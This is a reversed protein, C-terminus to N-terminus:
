AHVHPSTIAGTAAADGHPGFGPRAVPQGGRSLRVACYKFEPIKGFPDLESHTLVNAAAEYYAFPIFVSGRPTGDDRRAHLAVSGRRSEVTIVDGPEVGLAQMDDGCLSATAQPEIADLVSARRTMSGTHWHELQRGTILVFPFDADPREAAPIIDAPVLKVRGSPTPFRETFVVPQGPDDASLCPYTVSSERELRQWTIGGIAAHMAQRMEDYVQAVGHDAGQYHWQLGMRLALQQIIWLDHRADGPPAIAQRGMQVMRDTNSVTGTKEPWASAPLVVDALWATETMFIDQVVLHQLSALAHRAHHLDPDSMAPNEGMIYMGRIKHPDSDPALAKHMIEVVTYGPTADLERGWFNEFWARAASNDVRQYNPLMMPILGADSAGQVNNQGRLPHLGTGARGIQGAVTALAILCRANDTGHVHQSVGMGWLIMASGAAAYARAVERLTDAPVGCIPAMAEPSYGRVNERLAEFNSAREGIFADDALGEEIIVHILANLMAVDTDPKFQMVRWAHRGIDTIRPDALVIRTGRRAANKMWTAAVPHNATPNSGIVIILDSHAVDGVPNSVAGSGVGELLAAVSSAHCLRTCHDVNNSGFGTRVLKQFLYAEENSGKASGFGALSKPGHADRLAALTGGALALAEDWTAERFVERWDGPPHDLLAPDKAVGEKRILPKLLRGPHHAYDFGFRGKVCLRSHNAPGDRGEVAVIREDRVQYTILCGVGCFPCVSDVERDVKQSGVRTRPALAGTPCAQVCEGCAVCTSDAMPDDLDFVIKSASGRLAYGIVDNMQEERCARVCRNCQICADLNVAMAPHSMDAAVPERAIAALAPRVSVQMRGAWDSLEGHQPAPANGKGADGDNGDNGDLWKYGQAPMDSLLMELVMKQSRRPRDGSANVKMGPTPARCCSPALTREGEIEVVCARCNGDPRLGPKHCLNPIEVGQRKAASWISEGPGADVSRGDLTFTVPGAGEPFDRASM